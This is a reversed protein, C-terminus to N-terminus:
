LLDYQPLPASDPSLLRMTSTSPLDAREGSRSIGTSETQQRLDGHGQHHECRGIREDIVFRDRGSGHRLVWPAVPTGGQSANNKVEQQGIFEFTMKEEGAARSAELTWKSVLLSNYDMFANGGSAKIEVEASLYPLAENGSTFVHQYPDASGTDVAAGFAAELWLGIHNYDLPVVINGGLTILGPAPPTIDRDNTRPLGLVPDNVFPQKEELSYSLIYTKTRNGSALTGFASQTKALFDITKGRPVVATTM